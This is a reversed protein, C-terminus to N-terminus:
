VIYQQTEVIESGRLYLRPVRKSVGCIIEYSITGLKRALETVSIVEDGDRGFVTVTDGVQAEPVDTVDAMCMDMCIRGVVPIRRGHLLLELQGSLRRPLGDAYGITLVAIRRESPTRYTRGYSITTGAPVTRIQAITTRLSMAPELALRGELEDSPSLGYTAIGPRIMDMAYEPYLISAGSNAHHCIAPKLGHAAMQELMATFRAYQLRTYAVDETDLSDAVCFHAFAGEVELGPLKATELLEPLTEPRDYAFFGLRSMGTDLKLHIRLTQGSGALLSSLQRAYELCNVEQRLKERCLVDAYEPPTYGLILIPRSVGGRRLQIAEELNSVAFYDAGVRELEMAVPVAGHGYADAKMVGLFRASAPVHARLVRYNHDLADLSIEAWTRKLMQM